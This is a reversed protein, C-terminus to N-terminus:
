TPVLLQSPQQRSTSGHPLPRFLFSGYMFSSDLRVNKLPAAAAPATAAPPARAAHPLLAALLAADLAALAALSAALLAAAEADASAEALAALPSMIGM